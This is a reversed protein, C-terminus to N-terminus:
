FLDSGLVFDAVREATMAKQSASDISAVGDGKQPGYSAFQAHNAGELVVEVLLSTPLKSRAKQYAEMNLVRDESGYISIAKLDTQSLDKTSYSALLVLGDFDQVHDAVYYSGFVGGLSHGGMYWHEYDYNELITAAKKYGFMALNLPMTVLFCDVGRESVQTLLEAYAIDQVKGGPYFVLAHETGPGDFFYGEEIKSVNVNQTDSITCTARYYDNAYLVFALVLAMAVTGSVIIALRAKRGIRGM